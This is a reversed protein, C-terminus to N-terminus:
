WDRFANGLSRPLHSVQTSPSSLGAAPIPLERINFALKGRVLRRTPPQCAPPYGHATTNYDPSAALARLSTFVMDVTPSGEHAEARIGALFEQRGWCGSRTRPGLRITCIVRVVTGEPIASDEPTYIGKQNRGFTIPDRISSYNTLFARYQPNKPYTYTSHSKNVGPVPDPSM